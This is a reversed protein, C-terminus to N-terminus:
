IVFDRPFCISTQNSFDVIFPHNAIAMNSQWLYVYSHIIYLYINYMYIYYLVVTCGDFFASKVVSYPVFRHVHSISDLFVKQYNLMPISTMAWKTRHQIGNFLIQSTRYGHQIVLLYGM